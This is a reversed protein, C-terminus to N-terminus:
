MEYNNGGQLKEKLIEVMKNSRYEIVEHSKDLYDNLLDLYETNQYYRNGKREDPTTTILLRRAIPTSFLLRPKGDRFYHHLFFIEEWKSIDLFAPNYEPNQQLQLEIKSMDIRGNKVKEQYQEIAILFWDFYDRMGYLYEARAGNIGNKMNGRNPLLIFNGLTHYEEYFSIIKMWLEQDKDAEFYKARYAFDKGNGEKGFLSGFSNMTDGRYAYTCNSDWPGMKEFTLDYIHGWLLIYIAQTILYMDPDVIKGIYTNLADFCYTKLREIDGELVEEVFNAFIYLAKQYDNTEEYETRLM